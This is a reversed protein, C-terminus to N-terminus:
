KTMCTATNRAAHHNLWSYYYKASPFNQYSYFFPLQILSSSGLAQMNTKCSTIGTFHFNINPLAHLKNAKHTLHLRTSSVLPFTPIKQHSRPLLKAPFKELNDSHLFHHLKWSNKHIKAKFEQTLSYYISYILKTQVHMFSKFIFRPYFFLSFFSFFDLIQPWSFPNFMQNIKKSNTASIKM